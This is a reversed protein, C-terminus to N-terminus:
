SQLRFVYSDGSAEIGTGQWNVKISGSAVAGGWLRLWGDRVVIVGILRDSYHRRLERDQNQDISSPFTSWLGEGPHSHMWLALHAGTKELDVLYKTLREPCARVHAVSPHAETVDAISTITLGSESRRGGMAMMREAPFLQRWAAFMMDTPIVITSETSQVPVDVPNPRRRRRRQRDIRVRIHIAPERAKPQRKGLWMMM